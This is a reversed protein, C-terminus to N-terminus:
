ADAERTGRHLLAAGLLLGGLALLQLPQLHEGLLAAGLLTILLLGTAEWVAFAVAVPIQRFAQALLWYSGALLLFTLPLQGQDFAFLKLSLTGTVELAIAAFLATWARM